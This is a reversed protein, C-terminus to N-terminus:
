LPERGVWSGEQSTGLLVLVLELVRQLRVVVWWGGGQVLPFNGPDPEM